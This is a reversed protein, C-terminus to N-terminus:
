RPKPLQHMRRPVTYHNSGHTLLLQIERLLDTVVLTAFLEDFSVHFELDKERRSRLRSM